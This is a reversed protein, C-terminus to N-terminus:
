SYWAEEYTACDQEQGTMEKLAKQVSEKFQKGTEDDGISCWDRGIYYGSSGEPYHCSLDHKEALGWMEERDGDETYSCSVIAGYICFSTTSSNSVFGQRTKM